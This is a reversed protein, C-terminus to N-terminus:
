GPERSTLPGRNHLYVQQHCGFQWSGSAENGNVDSRTPPYARISVVILQGHQGGRQLSCQIFAKDSTFCHGPSPWGDATYKQDALPWWGFWESRCMGFGNPLEVVWHWPLFSSLLIAWNDHRHEGLYIDSYIYQKITNLTIRHLSIYHLTVMYDLAFTIFHM